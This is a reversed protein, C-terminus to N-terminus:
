DFGINRAHMSSTEFMVRKIESWLVAGLYIACPESSSFLEFSGISSLDYSNLKSQALM